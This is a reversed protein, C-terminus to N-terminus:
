NFIYFSKDCQPCYMLNTNEPRVMITGCKKCKFQKGNRSKRMKPAEALGANVLAKQLQNM